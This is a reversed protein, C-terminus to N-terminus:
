ESGPGVRKKKKYVASTEDVPYRHTMYIRLANKDLEKFNVAFKKIEEERSEFKGQKDEYKACFAKYKKHIKKQLEKNTWLAEATDM